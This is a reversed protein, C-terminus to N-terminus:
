GSGVVVKGGGGAVMVDDGLEDVEGLSETAVGATREFDLAGERM